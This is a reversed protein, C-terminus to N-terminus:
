FPLNDRGSRHWHNQSRSRAHILQFEFFLYECAPESIFRFPFGLSFVNTGNEALINHCTVNNGPVSNPTYTECPVKFPQIDKRIEAIQTHINAESLQKVQEDNENEFSTM